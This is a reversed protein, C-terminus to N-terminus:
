NSFFDVALMDKWTDINTDSVFIFSFVRTQVDPIMMMVEDTSRSEYWDLWPTDNGM